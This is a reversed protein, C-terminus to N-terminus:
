GEEGRREANIAQHEAVKAACLITAIATDLEDTRDFPIRVMDLRSVEQHFILMDLVRGTPGDGYITGPHIDFGRAAASSVCKAALLMLDYEDCYEMEICVPWGAISLMLTGKREQCGIWECVARVTKPTIENM